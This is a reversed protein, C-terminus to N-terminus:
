LLNLREPEKNNRLLMSNNILTVTGKVFVWGLLATVIATLIPQITEKAVAKYVDLSPSREAEAKAKVAEIQKTYATLQAAYVNWADKSACDIPCKPADPPAPVAAVVNTSSAFLWIGGVLVLVTAALFWLLLIIQVATKM